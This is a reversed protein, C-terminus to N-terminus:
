INYLSLVASVAPKDQRSGALLPFTMLALSQVSGSHVFEADADCGGWETFTELSHRSTILYLETDCM